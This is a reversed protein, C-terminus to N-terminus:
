KHCTVCERSAGRSNHCELCWGMGLDTVRQVTTMLEVPGHCEQCKVGSLVHRKHTFYVHPKVRYVRVWKIPEGAKYMAALKVVEPKDTAVGAHCAMCFDAHPLGAHISKEAYQHCDTCEMGIRTVHIFHPFEIPQAPRMSPRQRLGLAVVLAAVAAFWAAVMGFIAVTKM